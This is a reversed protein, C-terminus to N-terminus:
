DEDEQERLANTVGALSTVLESFGTREIDFVQKVALDSEVGNLASRIREQQHEPIAECEFPRYDKKDLRKVVYREWAKLEDQISKTDDEAVEEDTEDPEPIEERPTFLEPAPIPGGEMPAHVPAIQASLMIGREDGIQEDNYYKERVEDITHTKAYEQQESLELVRDTFRVDEFEGKLETSDEPNSYVPLIDNTIKEAMSTLNPWVVYESFTARGTKANAETANVDLMSALGPAYIGFIEEKNMTRGKIFEMDRQSMAAQMWQVGGKGANRLMMISREAASKDSEAKLKTWDSDGIPDAFALIGPLMANNEAFLRTNWDQMKLDGVAITAIAEIPSMGVFESMPNFSKFHAVEWLDFPIETGDGPDYMYGRLYLHEDPVPRLKYSPIVWMESPEDDPGARNLWWYNNGTLAKYATSAELFEFRSQLPNPKRLLEEFPHNVIEKSDEGEMELVGFPVTACAQATISVAIHVWSLRQYLEAQAQYMAGSPINFKEAQGTALMWPAPDTLAETKTYGINHLIREIINM